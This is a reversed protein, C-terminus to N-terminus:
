VADEPWLQKDFAQATPGFVRPWLHSRALLQAHLQGPLTTRHVLEIYYTSIAQLPVLGSVLPSPRAQKHVWPSRLHKAAWRMQLRHLLTQLMQRVRSAHTTQQCRCRGMMQQMRSACLPVRLKGHQCHAQEMVKVLCM